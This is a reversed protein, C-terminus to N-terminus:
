RTIFLKNVMRNEGSVIEVLYIGEPLDSVMLRASRIGANLSFQKVVKGISNYVVGEAEDQIADSFGITTYTVAPNPYLGLNIKESPKDMGVTQYVLSLSDVLLVSGDMINEPDTNMIIVNMSDPTEQSTYEVPVEFLTWDTVTSSKLLAQGITDRVGNNLFIGIGIFCSDAGSATYKYYGRLHSPRSTFPIGGEIGGQQTTMDLEFTGLTAVGPMTADTGVVSQTVCELRMSKSGYMYDADDAQVTHFSYQGLFGLDIYDNSTDWSDPNMMSNGIDSWNEFDPNAIQEQAIGAFSTIFAFFLTISKKM